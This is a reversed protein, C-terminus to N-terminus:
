ANDASFGRRTRITTVRGSSLETTTAPLTVAVVHQHLIGLCECGEVWDKVLGLSAGIAAQDGRRRGRLSWIAVM